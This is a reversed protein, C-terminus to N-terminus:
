KLHYDFAIEFLTDCACGINHKAGGAPDHSHQMRTGDPMEFPTELGSVKHENMAEHQWRADEDYPGLHRWTKTVADLPLGAKELAQRYSEHRAGMVAQATETRAIDEARRAILRDAYRGAIKDIEAKTLPKGDRIRARITRLDRGDMRAYRPRLEGTERDKVFLGRPDTELLERVSRVYGEQPDSLGIIGGARRGTAADVRGAIDTAIDQPGRGKSYGDVIVRRAIDTQERTYGAVREAAQTRIWQEARPNTMDFRFNPVPADAVPIYSSSLAGALAYGAIKQAVYGNFAGAEINLATVAAEINGAQLAHKLAVLDIGDGLDAIADMFAARLEPELKAILDALARDISPRRSM